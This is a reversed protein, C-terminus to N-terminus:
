LLPLKLTFIYPKRVSGSSKLSYQTDISSIKSSTCLYVGFTVNSSMEYCVIMCIFVALHLVKGNKSSTIPSSGVVQQNCILQEALQAIGAIRREIASVFVIRDYIWKFTLSKKLNKRNKQSDLSLRRFTGEACDM